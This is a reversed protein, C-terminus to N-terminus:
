GSAAAIDSLAVIDKYTVQGNEDFDYEENGQIADSNFQEFFVTVDTDTLQGDGDIDEYRGDDDVDTPRRDYVIPGVDHVEVTAGSNSTTITGAEDNELVEVNTITLETTGDANAGSRLYVTGLTVNEAGAEVNQNLDVGRIMAADSSTNTVALDFEDGASAAAITIEEGGASVTVNFGSVGQLAESLMVNATIEDGATVHDRQPVIDLNATNGDGDDAERVTIQGSNASVNIEAGTDDDIRRIEQVGLSTEGATKGEIDIDALSVNTAGEQVNESLDVARLNVTLATGNDSVNVESLDFQEAIEANTITATSNNEIGLVIDYGALGDPAESLTVAVSTSSGEEVTADSVNITPSAAEQASAVGVSGVVPAVVVMGVVAIITLLRATAITNQSHYPQSTEIAANEM